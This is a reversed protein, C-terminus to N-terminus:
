IRKVSTPIIGIICVKHLEAEEYQVSITDIVLYIMFLGGVAALAGVLANTKRLRMTSRTLIAKTDCGFSRNPFDFM